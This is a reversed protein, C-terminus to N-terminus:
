CLMMPDYMIDSIAAVEMQFSVGESSSWSIRDGNKLNWFPIEDCLDYKLDKIM